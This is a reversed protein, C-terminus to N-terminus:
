KSDKKTKKKTDKNEVVKKPEEVVKKPKEAVKEPEEVTVAVGKNDSTATTDESELPVDEGPYYKRGNLKVTYEFKM